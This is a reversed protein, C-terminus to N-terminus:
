GMPCRTVLVFWGVPADWDGYAYGDSTASLSEPYVHDGPFTIETRDAPRAPNLWTLTTALVVIGLHITKM